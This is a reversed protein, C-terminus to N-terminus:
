QQPWYNSFTNSTYYASQVVLIIIGIIPNACLTDCVTSRPQAPCFVLGHDVSRHWVLTYVMAATSRSNVTRMDGHGENRNPHLRLMFIISGLSWSRSSSNLTQNKCCLITPELSEIISEYKTSYKIAFKNIANLTNYM